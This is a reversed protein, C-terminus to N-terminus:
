PRPDVFREPSLSRAEVGAAAVDGPVPEGLALAAAVRALAPATQIGAGGQGALWFFGEARPDFGVVPTRDPVFSRLGAWKRAVHHVELACARTIRDVAIAM